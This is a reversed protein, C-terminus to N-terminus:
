PHSSRQEATWPLLLPLLQLTPLLETPLQQAM